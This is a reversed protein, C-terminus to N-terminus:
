YGSPAGRTLGKRCLAKLNSTHWSFFLSFGSLMLNIKAGQLFKVYEENKLDASRDFIRCETAEVGLPTLYPRFPVEGKMGSAKLEEIAKYLTGRYIGEMNARLELDYFVVRMDKIDFPVATGKEIMLIVPRAASQAVALEYFVNPNHYTLVAIVFADNLICDFMYDTIKGPEATHDGRHATYGAKEAAPRIIYDFVNDAHKRVDSQEEGIPSIVFCKQEM